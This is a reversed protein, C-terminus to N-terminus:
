HPTRARRSREEVTQLTLGQEAHPRLTEFFHKTLVSSMIVRVIPQIQINAKLTKALHVERPPLHYFDLTSEGEGLAVFIANAFFTTPQPEPSSIPQLKPAAGTAELFKDLTSQVGASSKWFQDFLSKKPMAVDVRNAFKNTTENRRGFSLVVMRQNEDLALHLSDAYYYNLPATVLGFDIRIEIPGGEGKPFTYLM